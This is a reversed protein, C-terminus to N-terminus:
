FTWEFSIKKDNMVKVIGAIWPGYEKVVKPTYRKELQKINVNTGTQVYTAKGLAKYADESKGTPGRSAEISIATTLIFIGLMGM